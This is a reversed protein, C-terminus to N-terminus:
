KKETTQKINDGVIVLLEISHISVRRTSVALVNINEKQEIVAM